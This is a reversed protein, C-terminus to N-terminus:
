ADVQELRCLGDGLRLCLYATTAHLEREEHRRQEDEAKVKEYHRLSRERDFPEGIEVELHGSDQAMM